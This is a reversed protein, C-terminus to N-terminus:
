YDFVPNYAHNFACFSLTAGFEGVFLPAIAIALAIAFSAGGPFMRAFLVRSHFWAQKRLCWPQRIPQQNNAATASFARAETLRVIKVVLGFIQM